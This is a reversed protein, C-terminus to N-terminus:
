TLATRVEDCLEGALSCQRQYELQANILAIEQADRYERDPLMDNQRLWYAVECWYWLPSDDALYCAPPPFDGPGRKGYIYHSVVQRSRGIRRAIESQTVLNCPDVRLVDAGINATRVNHIATLIADAMSMAQRSFTLYVRGLRLSPTADDCGAEFLADVIRQDLRSIGTLILTFEYETNNLPNTM